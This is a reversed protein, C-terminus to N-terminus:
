AKQGWVAYVPDSYMLDPFYKDDHPRPLGRFSYTQLNKFGGSRIFYELVLGMREFEHLEKWIRIAKTPFWRNSFTVIFYGDTRLVRSVEEFIALPNTLYEVSVSCLVADFSDSEFPLVPSLNLDQVVRESLRNNNKLERDNLGLGVLRAFEMRDPLHSQWSSMLDLVNMNNKLFRGYTNKVMEIATDDIHQVLRPKEYFLGDPTEDDRRFAESYFFDTQQNQWRAQMGPGTTLVEMWDVSTGGREAEKNEVKGVIGALILDKGALPHNFDVIMHGNNLHVLRFPEVNARFVGAVSKLTGKPYFRGVAPDTFTKLAHRRDFQNSKIQFVNRDDFEPLVDNSKFRVEIREAAQKGKIADLLMPPIYDRWINIRSAQYGETHIAADSKWKLHFIMDVISDSDIRRSDV